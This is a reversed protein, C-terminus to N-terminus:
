IYVLVKATVSCLSSAAAFCRPMRQLTHICNVSLRARSWPSPYRVTERTQTLIWTIKNSEYMFAYGM